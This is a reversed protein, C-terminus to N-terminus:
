KDRFFRTNDGLSDRIESYGAKQIVFRPYSCYCPYLKHIGTYLGDIYRYQETIDNAVLLFELIRDYYKKNVAYVHTTLTHSLKVVGESVREVLGAHNGGLYFM